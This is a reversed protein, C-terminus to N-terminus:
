NENNLIQIRVDESCPSVDCHRTFNLPLLNFRKTFHIISIRNNRTFLDIKPRYIIVLGIGVIIIIWPPTRRIPPSSESEIVVIVVIVVMMM